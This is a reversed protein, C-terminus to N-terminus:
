GLPTIANLGLNRPQGDPESRAVKPSRNIPIVVRFLNSGGTRAGNICGRQPQFFYHIVNGLTTGGVPWGQASPQLGTPIPFPTSM